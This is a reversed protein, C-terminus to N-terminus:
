QASGVSARDREVKWRWVLFAAFVLAFLTYFFGSVDVTWTRQAFCRGFVAAYFIALAMFCAVLRRRSSESGGAVVRRWCVDAIMLPVFLLLISSPKGLTWALVDALISLGGLGAVAAGGAATRGPPLPRTDLAAGQLDPPTQDNPM